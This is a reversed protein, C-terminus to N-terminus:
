VRFGLGLGWVRFRVGEVRFGLGLVRVVDVGQPGVPRGRLLLKPNLTEPNPTEPKPNRPNRARLPGECMVLIHLSTNEYVCVYVCVYGEGVQM